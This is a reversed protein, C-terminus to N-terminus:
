MREIVNDSGYGLLWNPSTKTAEAIKKLNQITPECKGHLIRCIIATDVGTLTSFERQNIGLDKILLSIREKTTSM